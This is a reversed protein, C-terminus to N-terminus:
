FQDNVAGKSLINFINSTFQKQTDIKYLKHNFYKIGLKKIIKEVNIILNTKLIHKNKSM